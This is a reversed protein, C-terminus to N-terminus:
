RQYDQEPRRGRLHQRGPGDQLCRGIGRFEPDAAVMPSLEDFRRCQNEDLISRLAARTELLAKRVEPQHRRRLQRIKEMGARVVPAFQERQEHTLELERALREIRGAPERGILSGPRALPMTFGCTADPRLSQFLALAGAGSLFGAIFVLAVVMSAKAATKM